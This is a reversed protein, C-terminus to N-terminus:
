ITPMSNIDGCEVWGVLVSASAQGDNNNLIINYYDVVVSLRRRTARFTRILVRFERICCMCVANYLYFKIRREAHLAFEACAGAKQLAIFEHLRKCAIRRHTENRNHTRQQARPRHKRTRHHRSIKANRSRTARLGAKTYNRCCQARATCQLLDFNMCSVFFTYNQVTCCGAAFKHYVM